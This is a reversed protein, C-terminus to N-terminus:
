SHEVVVDIVSAWQDFRRLAEQAAKTIGPRRPEDDPMTITLRLRRPERRVVFSIPPSAGDVDEPTVVGHLLLDRRIAAAHALGSGAAEQCTALLDTGALHTGPGFSVAHRPDGSLVVPVRRRSACLAGRESATLDDGARAVVAVDVDGVDLPCDAVADLGRCPARPDAADCGVVTHGAAVLESEAGAGAGPAGEVLLVKM